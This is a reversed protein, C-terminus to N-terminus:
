KCQRSREHAIRGLKNALKDLDSSLIRENDALVSYLIKCVMSSPLARAARELLIIPATHPRPKLEIPKRFHIM